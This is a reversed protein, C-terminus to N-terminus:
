FRWHYRLISFFLQAVHELLSPSQLFIRTPEDRVQTWTIKFNTSIWRWHIEHFDKVKVRFGRRLGSVVRQRVLGLHRSALIAKFGLDIKVIISTCSDVCDSNLQVRLLHLSNGVPGLEALMSCHQVPVCVCVVLHFSLTTFQHSITLSRLVFCVCLGYTFIHYM